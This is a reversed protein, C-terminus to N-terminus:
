VLEDLAAFVEALLSAVAIAFRVGDGAALFIRRVFLRSRLKVCNFCKIAFRALSINAFIGTAGLFEWFKYCIERASGCFFIERQPSAGTFLLFVWFGINKSFIRSARRKRKTNFAIFFKGAVGGTRAGRALRWVATEDCGPRFGVNM